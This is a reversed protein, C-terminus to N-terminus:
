YFDIVALSLKGRRRHVSQRGEVFRLRANEKTKLINTSSYPARVMGSAQCGDSRLARAFSRSNLMPAFASNSALATFAAIGALFAITQTTESISRGNESPLEAPTKPASHPM